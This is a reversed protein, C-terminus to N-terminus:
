NNKYNVNVDWRGADKIEFEVYDKGSHMKLRLPFNINKITYMNQTTSVKDVKIEDYGGNLVEIQDFVPGTANRAEKSESKGQLGIGTVNNDQANLKKIGVSVYLMNGSKKSKRITVSAIAPSKAIVKYAQTTDASVSSKFETAAYSKISFVILILAIFSTLNKM